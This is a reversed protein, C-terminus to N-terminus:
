DKISVICVKKKCFATNFKTILLRMWFPTLLWFALQFLYIFSEWSSNHLIFLGQFLPLNNHVNPVKQYHLDNGPTRTCLDVLKFLAKHLSDLLKFLTLVSFSRFVVSHEIFFMEGTAASFENASCQLEKLKVFIYSFLISYFLIYLELQFSKCRDRWWSGAWKLCIHLVNMQIKEYFVRWM